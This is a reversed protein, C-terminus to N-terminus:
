LLPNAKRMRILSYALSSQKVADALKLLDPMFRLEINRQLLEGPIDRIESVSVPVTEEYSIYYGAAEDLLIFGAAPFEYCYLTTGVIAPYWKSEVAMVFDASTQGMLRDKDRPLSEAGAYFTVRPCDRPLLYNHMLRKSIAFVVDGRIGPFYSPSPRPRFIPIGPEESIHYLEPPVM